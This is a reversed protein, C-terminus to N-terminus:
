PAWEGQGPEDIVGCEPCQTALFRTWQEIEAVDPLQGDEGAEAVHYVQGYRDVILLAASRPDLGLVGSAAGAPAVVIRAYWHRIDAAADDLAAVYGAWASSDRPLLVLVLADRPTPQPAAAAGTAAALSPLPPLMDGVAIRRGPRTAM